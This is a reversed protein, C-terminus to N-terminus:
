GDALDMVKSVTRWNRATCWVGMSKEIRAFLKSRGVGNPAHLYFVTGDLVFREDNAQLTDLKAIDPNTPVSSLFSLHLTTPENEAEPWPNRKIALALEDPTLLLIEPAFGREENIASQLKGALRQRDSTRSRFVANGTAIYTQADKAGINELLEIFTKSPLTYRGGIGRLFAIWTTM